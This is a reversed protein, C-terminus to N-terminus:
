PGPIWAEYDGTAPPRQGGEYDHGPPRYGEPTGTLNPLHPKVWPQSPTPLPADATYHLWAHWEPPVTSADPMGKYLVWRRPRPQGRRARKEAFYINGLSDEGVRQGNLWTFIRTGITTM